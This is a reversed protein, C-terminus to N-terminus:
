PGTPDLILDVNEWPFNGGPHSDDVETFGSYIQYCIGTTGICGLAVFNSSRSFIHGRGEMYVQGNSATWDGQLIIADMNAYAFIGLVAVICIGILKKM